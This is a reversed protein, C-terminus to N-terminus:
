NPYFDNNYGILKITDPFMLYLLTEQNEDFTSIYIDRSKVFQKKGVLPFEFDSVDDEMRVCIHATDLQKIQELTITDFLRWHKIM